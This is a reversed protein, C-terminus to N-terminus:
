MGDAKLRAAMFRSVKKPKGNREEMIPNEEDEETAKFGGQRQIFRNRAKHYQAQIERNLLVQDFEDPAQPESPLPVHETITSALTQGAPGTPVPPAEPVPPTPLVQPTNAAARASKFKSVKSPKPPEVASPLAPASREVITDAITSAPKATPQATRKAEPVPKPAESVDVDNAFRVGKKKPQEDGGDDTSKAAAKSTDLAKDFQEDKQVRMTRIDGIHEDLPRDDPRPGINELMRAGLKKELEMMQKRYEETIVPRTSRGYEDEEEDDETDYDYDDYDSEDDSFSATPEDLNLEAVVQGVESMGYELMQRRLEADESSEDEPIVASSLDEDDELEVARVGEPFQVSALNQSVQPKSVPKVQPEVEVKEAFSVAKKSPSQGKATRNEAPAPESSATPTSEKIPDSAPPSTSSPEPPQEKAQVANKKELEAKQIGAKRLVEVLEAAAKGTQNVSSSIENGEEDLEEEIDMMPEGEENDMGPELLVDVGALKKEAADLNKEITASNTRVYDIRRSIKNVVENGTSETSSKKRLLEDLEKENLLELELERAMERIQSPSPDGAAEIEEKLAEYEAEWTTWHNLSKRLQDVTQQLQVRRREIDELASQTSAAM